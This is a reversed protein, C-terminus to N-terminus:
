EDEENLPMCTFEVFGGSAGAAGGPGAGEKEVAVIMFQM